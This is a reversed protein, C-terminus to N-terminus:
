RSRCDVVGTVEGGISGDPNVERYVVSVEQPVLVVKEVPVGDSEGFEVREVRVNQMTQRLVTVPDVPTAATIEVIMEPFVRQTAVAAWLAPSSTDLQKMAVGECTGSNRRTAPELTQGFRALDIWDRHNVETSEGEVGEVFLFTDARVATTMTLLILTATVLLAGAHMQRNM